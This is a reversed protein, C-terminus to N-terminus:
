HIDQGDLVSTCIRIHITRTVNGESTFCKRSVCAPDQWWTSNIYELFSRMILNAKGCTDVLCVNHLYMGRRSDWLDLSFKLLLTIIHCDLKTTNDKNLKLLKTDLNRFPLSTTQKRMDKLLTKEVRSHSNIFM